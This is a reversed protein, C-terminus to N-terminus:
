SAQEKPAKQKGFSIQIEHLDHPVTHYCGLKLMKLIQSHTFVIQM